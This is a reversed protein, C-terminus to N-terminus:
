CLKKIEDYRDLLYEESKIYYNKIVRSNSGLEANEKKRQLIQLYYFDDQSEFKLFPLILKLNDIM